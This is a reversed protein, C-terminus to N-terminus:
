LAPYQRFWPSPITVDQRSVRERFPDARRGPEGPRRQERAQRPREHNDNWSNVPYPSGLVPADYRRPQRPPEPAPPTRPALEARDDVYGAEVFGAEILAAIAAKVAARPESPHRQTVMDAIGDATLTGDMAQLLTWVAGTPDDIVTATGSQESGIHIRGGPLRKLAFEPKVRLLRV